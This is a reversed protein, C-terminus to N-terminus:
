QNVECDLYYKEMKNIFSEDTVNLTKGPQIDEIIDLMADFNFPGDFDKYKYIVNASSKLMNQSLQYQTAYGSLDRNYYKWYDVNYLKKTDLQGSEITEISYGGTSIPDDGAVSISVYPRDLITQLYEPTNKYIQELVDDSYMTIYLIDIYQQYTKEIMNWIFPHVAVTHNIYNPLNVISYGLPMWIDKKTYTSNGEPNNLVSGYRTDMAQFSKINAETILGEELRKNDTAENYWTHQAYTEWVGKLIKIIKMRANMWSPTLREENENVTKYNSLSLEDNILGTRRYFEVIDREDEVSLDGYLEYESLENWFPENGDSIYKSITQTETILEEKSNALNYVLNANFKYNNVIENNNILERTESNYSYDENAIKIEDKYVYPSNDSDIVVGNVPEFLYQEAITDVTRAGTEPNEIIKVVEVDNITYVYLITGDENITITPMYSTLTDFDLLRYSPVNDVYVKIEKLLTYTGLTKTSTLINESNLSLKYQLFTSPSSSINYSRIHDINIINDYMDICRYFATGTTDTAFYSQEAMPTASRDFMLNFTSSYEGKSNINTTILITKDKAWQVYQKPNSNKIYYQGSNTDYDYLETTTDLILEVENASPSPKWMIPGNVKNLINYGVYPNPKYTDSIIEDSKEGYDPYVLDGDVNLYRTYATKYKSIEVNEEVPNVPNINFYSSTTDIYEVIETGIINNLARLTNLNNDFEVGLTKAQLASQKYSYMKKFNEYSVEDNNERFAKVEPDNYFIGGPEFDENNYSPTLEYIKDVIEDLISVTTNINSPGVKYKNTAGVKQTLKDLIYEYVMQEILTGTGIMSDKIRIEKITKRLQCLKSCANAIQKATLEIKAIKLYTSYPFYENIFESFEIYIENDIGLNCITDFRNITASAIIPSLQNYLELNNQELITIFYNAIQTKSDDTLVDRLFPIYSESSKTIQDTQRDFVNSCVLEIYKVVNERDYYEYLYQKVIPVVVKDYFNNFYRKQIETNYAYKSDKYLASNNLSMDSIITSYLSNNFYERSISFINILFDLDEPFKEPDIIHKLNVDNLDYISLLFRWQCTDIATTNDIMNQIREYIARGIEETADSMFQQLYNQNKLKPNILYEKFKDAFDFASNKKTITIRLGKTYKTPNIHDTPVSSDKNYNVDYQGIGDRSYLVGLEIDKDVNEYTYKNTNLDYTSSPASSLQKIDLKVGLDKSFIDNPENNM